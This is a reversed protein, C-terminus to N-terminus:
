GRLRDNRFFLGGGCADHDSEKAEAQSGTGKEAGRHDAQELIRSDLIWRFLLLTKGVVFFSSIDGSLIKGNSLLKTNKMTYSNGVILHENRM